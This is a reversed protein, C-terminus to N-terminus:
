LVDIGKKNKLMKVTKEGYRKHLKWLIPNDM